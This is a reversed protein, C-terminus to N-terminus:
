IKEMLKNKSYKYLNSHKSDKTIQYESRIYKMKQNETLDKTGFRGCIEKRLLDSINKIGLRNQVDKM